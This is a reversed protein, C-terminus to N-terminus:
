KGFKEEYAKIEKGHARRATIVNGTNVNMIITWLKSDAMGILLVATDDTKSPIAIYKGALVKVMMEPYIEREESREKGHSSMKMNMIYFTNVFKDICKINKKM